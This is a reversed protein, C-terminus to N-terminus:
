RKAGRGSLVVGVTRAMIQLDWLTSRNAVYDLELELKEDISLDDRGNVQAWGTLGPRVRLVRRQHPTYDAAIAILEPRPGVLSMHGAVVNLLQPLEDISWRRLYSGIRTIRTDAEQTLAPGIRDAGEVMTRLKLIQFPRGERGSRWQRYLVSGRSDLGIAVCAPALLLLAGALLFVCLIIDLFRKLAMSAKARSSSLRPYYTGRPQELTDTGVPSIVQEPRM